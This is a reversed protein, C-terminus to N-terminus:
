MSFLVEKCAVNRTSNSYNDNKDYGIVKLGKKTKVRSVVQRLLCSTFCAGSTATSRQIHDDWQEIWLRVQKQVVVVRSTSGRISQTTTCLKYSVAVKLFPYGLDMFESTPLMVVDPLAKTFVNSVESTYRITTTATLSLKFGKYIKVRVGLINYKGSCSGLEKPVDSINVELLNKAEPVSGMDHDVLAEENHLSTLQGGQRYLDEDSMKSWFAPRSGNVNLNDDTPTLNTLILCVLSASGDIPDCAVVIKYVGLIGEKIGIIRLKKQIESALSDGDRKRKELNMFLQHLVKDPAKESLDFVQTHSPVDYKIVSPAKTQNNHNISKVSHGSHPCLAMKNKLFPQILITSVIGPNTHYKYIGDGIKYTLNIVSCVINVLGSVELYMVVLRFM